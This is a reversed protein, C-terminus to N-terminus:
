SMNYQKVAIIKPDPMRQDQKNQQYEKVLFECNKEEFETNSGKKLYFGSVRKFVENMAQDNELYNMEYGQTENEQEQGRRWVIALDIFNLKDSLTPTSIKLFRVTIELDKKPQILRSLRKNM